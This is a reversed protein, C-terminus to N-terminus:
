TSCPRKKMRAVDICSCIARAVEQAQLGITCLLGGAQRIDFGVFFAGQLAGKGSWPTVEM